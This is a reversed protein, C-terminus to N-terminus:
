RRGVSIPTYCPQKLTDERAEQLHLHLSTAPFITFHQIFYMYSFTM